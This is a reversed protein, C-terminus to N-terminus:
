AGMYDLVLKLGIKLQALRTKRCKKGMSKKELSSILTLYKGYWGWTM